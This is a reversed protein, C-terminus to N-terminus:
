NENLGFRISMLKKKYLSETKIVSDETITKPLIQLISFQFQKYRDPHKELLRKMKINGGHYTEVYCKWRDYLGGDSYASGIYQMGSETDVILYVAYISSLATHWSEYVDRNMVIERLEDYSLVLDEFGSFVKKRDPQISVVAKETTGKQHWMRTSKGWDITLKGEYELLADVHQLDYYAAHGLFGKAEREPFGEPLVDPTDPVSPGVHYLAYFKALTGADSVFVAWYEYGKSFDSDQHCTYEFVMGKEFCEKFGKDTLAHRLLKVKAPDINVKRLIDTFTLIAM